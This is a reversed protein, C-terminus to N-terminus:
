HFGSSQSKLDDLQRYLSRRRAAFAALFARASLFEHLRNVGEVSVRIAGRLSTVLNHFLKTRLRSRPGLSAIRPASDNMSVFINVGINAPSRPSIM